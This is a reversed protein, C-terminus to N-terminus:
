GVVTRGILTASYIYCSSKYVPGINVLNIANSGATLNVTIVAKAGQSCPYGSQEQPTPEPDADTAGTSFYGRLTVDNIRVWGYNSTWWAGVTMTAIVELNAAAYCNGDVTGILATIGDTEHGWNPTDINYSGTLAPASVDAYKFVAYRTTSADLTLGTINSNVVTTSGDASWGIFTAGTKAPNAM